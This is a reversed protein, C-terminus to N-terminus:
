VMIIDIRQQAHIAPAGALAVGTAATAAGAQQLFKRRKMAKEKPQKMQLVRTWSPNKSSKLHNLDARLDNFYNQHEFL